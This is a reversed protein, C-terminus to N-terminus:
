RQLRERSKRAEERYEAMVKNSSEAEDINSKGVQFDIDLAAIEDQMEDVKSKLGAKEAALLSSELIGEQKTHKELASVMDMRKDDVVEESSAM